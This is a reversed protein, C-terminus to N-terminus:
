SLALVTVPAAALLMGLALPPSRGLMGPIMAPLMLVASPVAVRWAVAEGIARAWPDSTWL